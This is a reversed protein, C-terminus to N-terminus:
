KCVAGQSLLVKKASKLSNIAEYFSSGADLKETYDNKGNYETVVLTYNTNIDDVLEMDITIYYKEEGLICTFEGQYEKTFDKITYLYVTFSIISILIIFYLTIILIKINKRTKNTIKETNSVKKEIIDRIDNDLLEDISINFYKSINKVQSIDPKTVNLEWNSITQRTVGLMDALTEQSLKKEKRLKMIKNGLEM